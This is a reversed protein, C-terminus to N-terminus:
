QILFDITIVIRYMLQATLLVCVSHINIPKRRVKFLGENHNRGPERV